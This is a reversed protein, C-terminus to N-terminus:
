RCSVSRNSHYTSVWRSKSSACGSGSTGRQAVGISTMVLIDAKVTAVAENLIRGPNYNAPDNVVIRNPHNFTRILELTGDTSRSAFNWLEFTRLTQRTLMELTGRIVDIDNYSRMIVAIKPQHSPM